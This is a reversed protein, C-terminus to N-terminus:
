DDHGITDKKIIFGGEPNIDLLTTDNVIEINKIVQLSDLMIIDHKRKFKRYSGEGWYFPGVLQNM